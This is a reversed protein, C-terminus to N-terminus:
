YGELLQRRETVQILQLDKSQLAFRLLRNILYDMLDATPMGLQRKLTLAFLIPGPGITESYDFPSPVCVLHKRAEDPQGKTLADHALICRSQWDNPTTRIRVEADRVANELRESRLNEIMIFRVMAPDSADAKGTRLAEDWKALLRDNPTLQRINELSRCLAERDQRAVQDNVRHWAAAARRAARANLERNVALSGGVAVGVLVVVVTARGWWPMHLFRIFPMRCWFWLIALPRMRRAATPPRATPPH